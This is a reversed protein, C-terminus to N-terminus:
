QTHVLDLGSHCSSFTVWRWRSYQDKHFEINSYGLEELMKEIVKKQGADFEMWVQGRPNLHDRAAELFKKIVELGGEGGFLALGPEWSVVSKSLKRDGPIYPPNAFIYDYKCKSALSGLSKFIDSHFVKYRAEAIGNMKLNVEIQPLLKKSKEAFDATAGPLHKLLAIGVCGSGAFIDLIKVPETRSKKSIEKIAMDVWYETEPRPILPHADLGIHCGLFDAYGIIYAVPEGAKLRKIDAALQATEKGVYKERVIWNIEKQRKPNM